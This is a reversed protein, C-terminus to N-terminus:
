VSSCHYAEEPGLGRGRSVPPRRCAVLGRHAAGAPGALRHFRDPDAQDHPVVRAGVSTMAPCHKMSPSEGPSHPSPLTTSSPDRPPAGSHLFRAPPRRHDYPARCCLSTPATGKQLEISAPARCVTTTITLHYPCSTSCHLSQTATPLRLFIAAPPPPDRIFSSPPTPSSPPPVLQRGRHACAALPVAACRRTAIRGPRPAATAGPPQGTSGPYKFNLIFELDSGVKIRDLLKTEFSWFNLYFYTTVPNSFTFLKEWQLNELNTISISNFM